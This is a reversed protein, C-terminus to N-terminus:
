MVNKFSELAFIEDKPVVGVVCTTQLLVLMLALIVRAIAMRGYSYLHGVRGRGACSDRSTITCVNLWNGLTDAMGSWKEKDLFSSELSAISHKRREVDESGGRVETGKDESKGKM